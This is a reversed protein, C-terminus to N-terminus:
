VRSGNDFASPAEGGPSGGAGGGGGVRLAPPPPPLTAASGAPPATPVRPRSDPSPGGEEVVVAWQPAVEHTERLIPAPMPPPQVEYAPPPATPLVRGGGGGAPRARREVERDPAPLDPQSPPGEASNVIGRVDSQNAAAAGASRPGQTERLWTDGDDWEIRRTEHLQGFYRVGQIEMSCQGSEEARFLSLSGKICPGNIVVTQGVSTVWTGDFAHSSCHSCVDFDCSRCGYLTSNVDLVRTCVSCSWGSASTNFSQLTHGLPCIM